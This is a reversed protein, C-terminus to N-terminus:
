FLVSHIKQMKITRNTISKLAKLMCCCNTKLIIMINANLQKRLTNEMGKSM